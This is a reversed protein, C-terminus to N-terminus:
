AAEIDGDGANDRRLRKITRQLATIEAELEAIRQLLERERPSGAADAANFALGIEDTRRWQVEARLTQGRQPIELTIVPPITVTQSLIIRAGEDSLDRIICDMGGRQKDFHVRGRLFSKSRRSGRRESM